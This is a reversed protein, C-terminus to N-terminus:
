GGFPEPNSHFFSNFITGVWNEHKPLMKSPNIFWAVVKVENETAKIWEEIESHIKNILKLQLRPILDKAHNVASGNGSRVPNSIQLLARSPFTRLFRFLSPLSAEIKAGGKEGRVSCATTAPNSPIAQAWL